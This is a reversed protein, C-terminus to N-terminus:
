RTAALVTLTDYQASVDQGNDVVELLRARLQPNRTTGDPNFTAEILDAVPALTTTQYM